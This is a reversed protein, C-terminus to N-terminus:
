SWKKLYIAQAISAAFLALFGWRIFVLDTRSNLLPRRLLIWAVAVWYGLMAFGCIKATLGGDLNLACLLAIPIQQIIALRFALRSRTSDLSQLVSLM